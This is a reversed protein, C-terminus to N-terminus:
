NINYKEKDAWSCDVPSLELEVNMPVIIWNWHDLLDISTVRKATQVVHSLEDPHIDWIMSDHIQGVLRSDWKEKIMIDTLTIFCWLLCHFATGQGPTNIVQNRDMVGSCRFGTKLDIYGYRRYLKWIMEKWAAYDPFRKGWFDDEIDKLHETFADFSKIGKSIFHDSITGDSLAMGQGSRWRTQPLKCWDSALGVACNKYYDGYFEAFVFAGKAADRLIKHEPIEKNFDDILFIQKAMDRHMDATPDSVYKILNPDKNYCANIAVEIGKFDIELLQHGPRPFIAKRCILKSEKDRIPINQFNPSDSSSRFTRALHLNFFPHMYGNAQERAFGDLNVDRLREVKAKEALINLEPINLQALAESDTAGVGSATLKPPKIKKVNYLFNRLQKDSNINLRGKTASEWEKYFTTERFQNDLSEIKKTLYLKKENVYDMDIRIGAAQAKSLALIGDHFLYYAERTKPNISM